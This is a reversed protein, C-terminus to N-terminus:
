EALWSLRARTRSTAAEYLAHRDRGAEKADYMALDADTLMQEADADAHFAAIGISATVPQEFLQGRERVKAVIKDAVCRAEDGSERPILVAFEDGGLRAIVDTERLCSRLVDATMGILQDGAGHGLTDNVSKFHDLDLVLLAGTPEYRRVHAVHRALEREFGRRNLLGTLPDHDAMHQLEAEVRRQNTIDILHVLLPANTGSDDVLATVHVAAWFERGSAHCFRAEASCDVQDSGGLSVVMDEARSLEDPHLLAAPAMQLLASMPYGTLDSLAQNVQLARGSRDLLAMAVPGSDFAREFRTQLSRREREATDRESNARATQNLLQLLVAVALATLLTGIVLALPGYGLRGPSPSSTLLEWRQGALEIVRRQPDRLVGGRAVDVRGLRLAFGSGRPLVESFEAALRDLPFTGAVAGRMVGGPDIVPAYVIIGRNGTKQIFRTM